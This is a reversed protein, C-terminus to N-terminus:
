QVLSRVTLAYEEEKCDRVDETRPPTLFLAFSCVEDFSINSCTHKGGGFDPGRSSLKLYYRYSDNMM